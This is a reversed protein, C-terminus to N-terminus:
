VKKMRNEFDRARGSVREVKTGACESFLLFFHEFKSYGQDM